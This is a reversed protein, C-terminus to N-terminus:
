VVDPDTVVLATGASVLVLQSRPVPHFVAASPLPVLTDADAEYVGVAFM